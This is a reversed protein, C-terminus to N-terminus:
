MTYGGEEDVTMCTLRRDIDDFKVSRVTPSLSRSEGVKVQTAYVHVYVQKRVSECQIVEKRM